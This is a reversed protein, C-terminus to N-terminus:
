VTKPVGPTKKTVEPLAERLLELATSSLGGYGNALGEFTTRTVNKRDELGCQYAVKAMISAKGKWEELRKDMAAESGKATRPTVPQADAKLRKNEQTLREIEQRAQALQAKLAATEGSADQNTLPALCEFFRKEHEEGYGKSNLYAAINGATFTFISTDGYPSWPEIASLFGHLIQNRVVSEGLGLIYNADDWGM